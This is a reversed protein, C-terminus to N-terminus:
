RPNFVMKILPFFEEKYGSVLNEPEPMKIEPTNAFRKFGFTAKNKKANKGWNTLAPCPWVGTGNMIKPNIKVTVPVIQLRVRANSADFNELM